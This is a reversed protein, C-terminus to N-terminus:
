RERSEGVKNMEVKKGTGLWGSLLGEELFGERFASSVGGTARNQARAVSQIETKVSEPVKRTTQESAGLAPSPVEEIATKPIVRPPDEWISGRSTRLGAWPREIERLVGARDTWAM